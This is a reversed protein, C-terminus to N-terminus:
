LARREAKQAPERHSEIVKAPSRRERNFERLVADMHAAHGLRLFAEFGEFKLFWPDAKGEDWMAIDPGGDFTVKVPATGVVTILVYGQREIHKKTYGTM